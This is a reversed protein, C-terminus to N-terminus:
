STSMIIVHIFEMLRELNHIDMVLLHNEFIYATLGDCKTIKELMSNICFRCDEIMLMNILNPLNFDLFSPCCSISARSVLWFPFFDSPNPFVIENYSEVVPKRTQPGFEDKPYLMFHHFLNLQKDSVDSHFLLHHCDWIRVLGCVSLESPPLEIVWKLKVVVKLDKITAGRM